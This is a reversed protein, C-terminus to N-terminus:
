GSPQRIIHAAPPPSQPPPSRDSRTEAAQAQRGPAAPWGAAPVGPSLDAPPETAPSPTNSTLPNPPAANPPSPPSFILGQGPRLLPGGPPPTLPQPMQSRVLQGPSRSQPELSREAPTPLPPLPRARDAPSGVAVMSSPDNIPEVSAPAQSDMWPRPPKLQQESLPCDSPMNWDSGIENKLLRELNSSRGEAQWADLGAQINWAPADNSPLDIALAATGHGAAVPTSRLPEWDRGTTPASQTLPEARWFHSAALGGAGLTLCGVLHPALRLPPRM